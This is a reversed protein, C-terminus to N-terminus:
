TPTQEPALTAAGFERELRIAVRLVFPDTWSPGMVQLGVPLGDSFGIPISAAPLDCINALCTYDAQNAPVDGGQEFATQPATPCILLDLGQLALQREVSARAEAVALYSAALRGASQSKGYELLKRFGPTLGDDDRALEDAFCVSGEAESILLGHRRLRGPADIELRIREVNAGLAEIKAVAADLCPSIRDSVAIDTDLLGVSLGSFIVPENLWFERYDYSPRSVLAGAHGIALAAIVARLDEAKRTLPGIHDLSWSLHSLGDSSIRGYSPKFGFVGCYAAPIRVSGMTDTGLAFACLGAAVATGSGGSSGGPTLAEGPKSWPNICRGYAANDTTAGLAGEHMNLTGLIVCGQDRLLTVAFADETAVAKRRAEVGSTTPLGVVAINDKIAVPVGDLPGLGQGKSLRADAQAAAKRAGAADVNIYANLHPNLRAIRELYVEVVQIATLKKRALLEGLEVAGASIIEHETM